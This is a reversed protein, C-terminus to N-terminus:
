EGAEQRFYEAYEWQQDLTRQVIREARLLAEKPSEKGRVAREWAATYEGWFVTHALPIATSSHAFDMSETFVDMHPMSQQAPSEAAAINAPFFGAVNNAAVFAAQRTQVEDSAVFKIFEWAAEPDSAKAPIGMWVSGAVVAREGGEPTPLPAVGYEIEPSYLIMEQVFSSKQVIMSLKGSHFGHQAGQGFSSRREVLSEGGLEAFLEAEWTLAEIAEDTAITVTRGDKSLFRAGNQLSWNLYLPGGM